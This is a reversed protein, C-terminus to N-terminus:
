TSSILSSPPAELRVDKLVTLIGAVPTSTSPLILCVILKVLLPALAPTLVTVTRITGKFLLILPTGVVAVLLM